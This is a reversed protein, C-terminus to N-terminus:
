RMRSSSGIRASARKATPTMPSPYCAPIIKNYVKPIDCGSNKTTRTQQLRLAGIMTNKRLVYDPDSTDEPFITPNLTQELFEWVGERTSVGELLDESEGLIEQRVKASYQFSDGLAFSELVLALLVAWIVWFFLERRIQNSRKKVDKQHQLRVRQKVRANLHQLDNRGADGEGLWQMQLRRAWVNLKDADKTISNEVGPIASQYIIDETDEEAQKARQEDAAQM